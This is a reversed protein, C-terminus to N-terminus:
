ITNRLSYVQLRFQSCLGHRAARAYVQHSVRLVDYLAPVVTRRAEKAFVIVLAVQVPEFLARVFVAAGNMGVREYGVVHM